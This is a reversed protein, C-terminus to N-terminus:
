VSATVDRIADRLFGDPLMRADSYRARRHSRDLNVACLAGGEADCLIIISRGPGSPADIAIEGNPMPYVEFRRPWIRYTERLIHEGNRLAESSPIPLNEARAEDPSAKLDALADRLLDEDAIAMHASEVLATRDVRVLATIHAIRSRIETGWYHDFIIEFSQLGDLRDTASVDQHAMWQTAASLSVNTRALHAGALRANDQISPWALTQEVSATDTPLASM